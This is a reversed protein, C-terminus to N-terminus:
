RRAAMDGYEAPHGCGAERVAQRHREGKVLTGFLELEKARCQACYGQMSTESLTRAATQSGNKTVMAM